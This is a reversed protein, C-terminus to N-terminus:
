WQETEFKFDEAAYLDYMERLADRLNGDHKTHLKNTHLKDPLECRAEGGLLERIIERLLESSTACEILTPLMGRRHSTIVLGAARKSRIKFRQWQMRSMQEAGDFLIVDRESLTSFLERLFLREFSRTERDLRLHIVRFGLAVLRPEMDELLTTKGTGHPGVIAARYNLKKLREFLEKWTRDRLRYRVGLVSDTKFPNERAKM